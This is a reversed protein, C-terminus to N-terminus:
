EDTKEKRPAETAFCAGMTFAVKFLDKIDFAFVNDSLTEVVGDVFMTWGDETTDFVDGPTTRASVVRKYAKGLELANDVSKQQESDM